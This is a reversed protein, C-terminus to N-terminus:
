RIVKISRAIFALIGVVLSQYAKLVHQREAEQLKEISHKVDLGTLRGVSTESEKAPGIKSTKVAYNLDIKTSYIEWFVCFM